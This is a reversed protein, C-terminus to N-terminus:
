NPREEIENLDQIFCFIVGAAMCAGFISQYILLENDMWKFHIFIGFIAAFITTRM